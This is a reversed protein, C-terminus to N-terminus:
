SGGGFLKIVPWFIFRLLRRLFSGFSPKEAPQATPSATPTPSGSIQFGIPDSQYIKGNSDKAQLQIYFSGEKLLSEPINMVEFKCSSATCIKTAPTWEMGFGPYLSRKSTLYNIMYEKMGTYKWTLPIKESTMKETVYNFEFQAAPNVTPVVTSTIPPIYGTAIPYTYNGSSTPYYWIPPNYPAPTATRYSWYPTSTRYGWYPTAKTWPLPTATVWRIPTSTYWVPQPTSTMVIIIIAITPQPTNTVAIMTATPPVATPPVATPPVATPPVATPPVTTPPVATPPVATPLVATPPVATPPVATPLVATPPVATPPVATPPVATPPVATPPVATPPVPTDTLVPISTETAQLISVGTLDYQPLSYLKQVLGPDTITLPNSTSNYGLDISVLSNLTGLSSPIEGELLSGSLDLSQLNTLYSISAPIEGSLTTGSDVSRLSPYQVASQCIQLNVRSNLVNQKEPTLQNNEIVLRQLLLQGALSSNIEPLMGSLINNSIVLDTLNRMTFLNAPIVGRLGMNILHLVKLSDFNAIEDPIFCFYDVTDFKLESVSGNECTIGKWTCPSENQFWGSDVQGFPTMKGFIAYLARFDNDSVKEATPAVSPQITPEQPVPTNSPIEAPPIPTNTFSIISSATEKVIADATQQYYIAVAADVTQQNAIAAAADATQQNAIAGAADATQQYYIAGAADATQQNAIAAAADATQQNAIAGAADATQQLTLDPTDTPVEAPQPFVIGSLNNEPIASFKQAMSLSSITLPNQTSNDSLDLSQLNTFTELEAPLEGGLNNGSIDLKSLYILNALSGPIGGDLGPETDVAPDYAVVSSCISLNPRNSLDQQKADTWKNDEIILTELPLQGNLSGDAQPFNGTILNGSIEVLRLSRMNLLGGPLIGRLGLNVLRLEQLSSLNTIEQPIFCFYDVANFDIKTVAGNECTIGNWSCPSYNDKFWGSNNQGEPTMQNYISLLINLDSENMGEYPPVPDQYFASVPVTILLIVSLILFLVKIRSHDKYM